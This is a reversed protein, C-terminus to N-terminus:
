NFILSMELNQTICLLYWTLTQGYILELVNQAIDFAPKRDRKLVHKSFLRSLLIVKYVNSYAFHNWLSPVVQRRLFDGLFTHIVTFIFDMLLLRYLEQGM